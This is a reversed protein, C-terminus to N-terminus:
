WPNVRFGQEQLVLFATMASLGVDVGDTLLDRDVGRSAATQGCLVIEVGAEMLERMVTTNPNAVGHRARYADDNLLEWAAPGHVM